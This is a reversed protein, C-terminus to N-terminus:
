NKQFKELLSVSLDLIKFIRKENRIPPVRFIAKENEFHAKRQKYPADKLM